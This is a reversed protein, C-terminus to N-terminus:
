RPRLLPPGAGAEDLRYLDNVIQVLRAVDDNTELVVIGEDVVAAPVRWLAGADGVVAPEIGCVRKSM